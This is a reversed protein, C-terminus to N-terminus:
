SIEKGDLYYIEISTGGHTIQEILAEQYRGEGWKAAAAPCLGTLGLGPSNPRVLDKIWLGDSGFLFTRQPLTPAGGPFQLYRHPPLGTRNGINAGAKVNALVGRSALNWGVNAHQIVSWASNGYNRLCADRQATKINWLIFHGSM